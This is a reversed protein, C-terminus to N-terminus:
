ASHEYKLEGDNSWDSNITLMIDLESEGAEQDCGFAARVSNMPDVYANIHGMNKAWQKRAKSQRKWSKGPYMTPQHLDRVFTKHRINPLAMESLDIEESYLDDVIDTVNNHALRKKLGKARASHRNYPLKSGTYVMTIDDPKKAMYTIVNSSSKIEYLSAWVSEPWERIDVIRDNEDKVMFPRLELEPRNFMPIFCSPNYFPHQGAKWMEDKGTMNLKIFSKADEPDFPRHQSPRCLNAWVAALEKEDHFQITTGDNLDILTYKM